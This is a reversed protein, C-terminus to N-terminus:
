RPRKLHEIDCGNLHREKKHNYDVAYVIDEEGDQWDCTCSINCVPTKHRNFSGQCDALHHWRAYSWCSPSHHSSGLKYKIFKVILDDLYVTVQGKGKLQVSQNYKLQTIKEFSADVEDLTFLDFEEINHRAQIM